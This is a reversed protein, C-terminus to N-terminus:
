VDGRGTKPSCWALPRMCSFALAVIHEDDPSSYPIHVQIGVKAKAYQGELTRELWNDQGQSTELAVYETRWRADTRSSIFYTEHRTAVGTDFSNSHPPM